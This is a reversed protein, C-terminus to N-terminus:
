RGSVARCKCASSISTLRPINPLAVENDGECLHLLYCSNQSLIYSFSFADISPAEFPDPGVKDQVSDVDDLHSTAASLNANWPNEVARVISPYYEYSTDASDAHHIPIGQNTTTGAVLAKSSM